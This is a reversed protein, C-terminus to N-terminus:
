SLRWRKSPSHAARTLTFCLARIPARDDPVLFAKDVRRYGFPARGGQAGSAWKRALSRKINRSLKRSYQAAANIVDGIRDKWGEDIITLIDEDCFYVPVRTQQLEELYRWADLENRAFRSVDYVLLVDFCRARADAVMQRFDSRRLVNTGSVLDTYTRAPEKMAFREVAERTVGCNPGLATTRARASRARASTRRPGSAELWARAAAKM